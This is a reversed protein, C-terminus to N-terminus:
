ILAYNYAAVILKIARRVIVETCIKKRFSVLKVFLHVVIMDYKHIIIGEHKLKSM